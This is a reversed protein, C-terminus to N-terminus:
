RRKYLCPLLKLEVQPRTIQAIKVFTFHVFYATSDTGRMDTLKFGFARKMKKILLGVTSFGGAAEDEGTDGSNDAGGKFRSRVEAIRLQGGDKLLRNAEVVFDRINTNMLSLCCVVIDVSNKPLPVHAMDCAVVREDFAVLDFSHVKVKKSIDDLSRSLRADGCGLDAVVLRSTSSEALKRIEAIITDLPNDPWRIQQTTYGRHYTEFLEPKAQFMEVAENSPMKYLRESIHRFEGVSKKQIMKGILSSKQPSDSDALRKIPVKKKSFLSTKTKLQSEVPRPRPKSVKVSTTTSTYRISPPVIKRTALIQGLKQKSLEKINSHKM